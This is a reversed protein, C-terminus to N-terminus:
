SRDAGPHTTSVGLPCNQQDLFVLKVGPLRVIELKLSPAKHRKNAMGM